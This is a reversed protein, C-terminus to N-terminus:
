QDDDNDPRIFAEEIVTYRRKIILRSSMGCCTVSLLHYFMSTIIHIFFRSFQFVTLWVYVELVLMSESFM